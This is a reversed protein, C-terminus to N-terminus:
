RVKGKDSIKLIYDNVINGFAIAKSNWNNQAAFETRQKRKFSSDSEIELVIKDKFENANTAISVMGEFEPLDAFDTMVVPLGISFYENVKLPYINKNTENKKYPILGLAFTALIEPVKDPTVPKGFEVNPYKNLSDYVTKERVEGIILFRFETLTKIANEVYDIEFRHDVSGIYGIIKNKKTNSYDSFYKSFLDYDVGNTVVECNENFETKQSKLYNSSVIILDVLKCFAADIPRIRPGHRRISLGDFCYYIHIKEDLKGDIGIGFIPNYATILVPKKIKKSKLARKVSYNYISCSIARLIGFLRDNKAFDMPLVPLPYIIEIETGVDTTLNISRKKIGLIRSIPANGAGLLSMLCDKATYTYDIYIVRNNTALRSLLQNTSKTYKGHWTTNSICIITEGTLM